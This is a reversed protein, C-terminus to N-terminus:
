CFPDIEEITPDAVYELIGGIECKLIECLKNVTSLHVLVGNKIKEMELPDIGEMKLVQVNLHKQKMTEFVRYKIM